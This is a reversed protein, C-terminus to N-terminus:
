GNRDKPYNIITETTNITVSPAPYQGSQLLRYEAPHLIPRRVSQFMTPLPDSMVPDTMNWDLRAIIEDVVINDASEVDVYKFFDAKDHEDMSAIIRDVDLVPVGAMALEKADDRTYCPRFLGITRHDEQESVYFFQDDHTRHISFRGLVSHELLFENILGLITKDDTYVTCIFM